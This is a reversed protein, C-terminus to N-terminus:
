ASFTTLSFYQEMALFYTQILELVCPGTIGYKCWGRHKEEGKGSSLAWSVFLTM